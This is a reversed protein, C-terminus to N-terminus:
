LRTLIAREVGEITQIEKLTDEPLPDDIRIITLADSGKRERVNQMEAINIGAKGLISSVKGIIGPRDTNHILLILGEPSIEVRHGDCMIIRLTDDALVAGWAEQRDNDGNLAVGFADSFDAATDRIEQELSIGEGAAKTAANVLSVQKEGRQSLAGKIVALLIMRSMKAPGLVTLKKIRDNTLQAVLSGLKEALKIQNKYEQIQAGGEPLNVATLSIGESFFGAVARAAEIAVASQAEQTSAGLHPTLIVNDLGQFIPKDPPESTFVDLAAGAIQKERLVRALDEENIIGGRACNIIFATKKMVSLQKHTILNQTDKTLPTHITIFDCNRCIDEVSSPKAALAKLRDERVLPDFALINMGFAKARRAVERGIRGMGIIGLTKGSLETGMYKKKEWEGKQMSNSAQPVHRALSLLFAFTLEAASTTNGEPANVVYIGKETAAELDINDIGVGARAIIKLNVGAEIVDRSVTSASRVILGDFESIRKLLEDHSMSKEFVTDVVPSRQLETLGAEAFGDTCLVKYTM